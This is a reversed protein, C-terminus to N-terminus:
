ARILEHTSESSRRLVFTYAFPNHTEGWGLEARLFTGIHLVQGVFGHGAFAEKIRRMSLRNCFYDEIPRVIHEPIEDMQFFGICLAERTVRCVEAVARQMGELSLHEFLDHVVCWDYARDPAAIEFVNGLNFEVGPALVRANTINKECLDFGAYDLFRDLGYAKYFRYENASGCAPELVSLRPGHPEVTGLTARWLRAFCDLSDGSREEAHDAPEHWRQLFNTIYNPVCFAHNEQPLSRFVQLVFRPISLGEANDSGHRLAHLIAEAEEPNHAPGAVTFLWNMIVAFRLEQAMLASHTEGFLARILGHRSLVSQINLRPDEVDAVLYGQLWDRDHRMWMRTLRQTEAALAEDM